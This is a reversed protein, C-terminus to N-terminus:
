FQRCARVSYVEGKNHTSRGLQWSDSFRQAAADSWGDGTIDSSTWYWDDSFNGLDKM